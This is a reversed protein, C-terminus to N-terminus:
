IHSLAASRQRDIPWPTLEEITHVIGNRSERRASFSLDVLLASTFRRQEQVEDNILRFGARIHSAPHNPVAETVSELILESTAGVFINAARLGRHIPLDPPLMFKFRKSRDGDQRETLDLWMVEKAEDNVTWCTSM